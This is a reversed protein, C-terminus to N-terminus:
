HNLFSFITGSQVLSLDQSTQQKLVVKVKHLHTELIPYQLLTPGSIDLQPSVAGM